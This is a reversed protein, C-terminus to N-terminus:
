HLCGRRPSGSRLARPSGAAHPVGVEVFGGCGHIEDSAAAASFFALLLVLLVPLRRRDMSLDSRAPASCAVPSVVVLDLIAIAATTATSNLSKALVHKSEPSKATTISGATTESHAKGGRASTYICAKPYPSPTIPKAFHSHTESHVRRPWNERQLKEITM